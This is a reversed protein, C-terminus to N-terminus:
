EPHELLLEYDGTTWGNQQDARLVVIRYEGSSPFRYNVINATDGSAEPRGTRLSQGNIDQVEVMPVLIGDTRNVTINIQEGSEASYTWVNAWQQNTITGEVPTDLEVEGLREALIPNGAGIGDLEVTLTYNGDTAGSRGGIREVRVYYIGATSLTYREINARALTEDINGRRMEQLSGGLLKVVPQLTSDADREVIISITDGSDVVLEWDEYWRAGITGEVPEDYTVTGVTGALLSSNEGAGLLNVTLQYEGQTVGGAGRSRTVVVTYEGADPLQYDMSARTGRDDTQRARLSRGSDDLIQVEPALTGNLREASIYILDNAEANLTYRHLWHTNTIEGTITDSYEITDIISTNNPHDTGTALPTVTLTYTGVTVGNGGRDRGVEVTYVGPNNSSWRIINALALTRDAGRSSAVSRGTADFITVDPILNGGTREVFVSIVDAGELELTWQQTFADDTIEGTVPVDYVLTSSDTHVVAADDADVDDTDVDDEAWVTVVSLLLAAILMLSNLYKKSM